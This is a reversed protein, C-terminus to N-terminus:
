RRRAICTVSQGFFSRSLPDLARSLPVIYKDFLAIQGNVADDNLSQHRKLRNALWGLGGIPNFYSLRVLEVPQDALLDALRTTTYRRCHGALRDLDNYLLMLAPVSILLHGGPKLVDVLNAIATADDEIHELVNITFVADVGQPFLGRLQERALIDCVAFKRGPMATRAHEVSERDHDVGCYDGFQSLRNSYHGHGFGVELIEGKLYPRFQEIVWDMYNQADAIASSYTDAGTKLSDSSVPQHPRSAQVM